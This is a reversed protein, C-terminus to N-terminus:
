TVSFPYLFIFFLTPPLVPDYCSDFNDFCLISDKESLATDIQFQLIDPTSESMGLVKGLEILLTGVSSASDCHVFYRADCYRGRIRINNLVARALTTKRYRAPGLIAIQAPHSGIDLVMDIIRALEADRGFFTQPASPPAIPRLRTLICDSSRSCSAGVQLHYDEISWCPGTFELSHPMADFVSM